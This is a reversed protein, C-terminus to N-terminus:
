VMLGNGLMDTLTAWILYWKVLTNCIGSVHCKMIFNIRRITHDKKWPGYAYIVRMVEKEFVFVMEMVRDSKRRVEVIKECLKEKELIGAGEIGDNNGLWRLKYRRSKVGVFRAGQGRWRVEQLCCADVKKRSQECM